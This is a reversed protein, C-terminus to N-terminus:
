QVASYQVSLRYQAASYEWYGAGYPVTGYPVTSHWVTGYRVMDYQVRGKLVTSYLETSDQGKRSKSIAQQLLGACPRRLAGCASKISEAELEAIGRGGAWNLM